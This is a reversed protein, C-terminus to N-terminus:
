VLPIPFIGIVLMNLGDRNLWGRFQTLKLEVTEALADLIRCSIWLM